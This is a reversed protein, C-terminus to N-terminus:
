SYFRVRRFGMESPISEREITREKVKLGQVYVYAESLTIRLSVHYTIM